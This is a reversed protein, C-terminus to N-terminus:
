IQQRRPAVVHRNLRSGRLRLSAIGALAFLFVNPEPVVALNVRTNVADIAIFSGPHAALFSAQLDMGNNTLTGSYDFLPYMGEGFGPLETVALTGDLTLNGTINVLDNIGGGVVNAVLLEFSSTSGA